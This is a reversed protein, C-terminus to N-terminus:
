IPLVGRKHLDPIKSPNEINRAQLFLIDTKRPRGVPLIGVNVMGIREFDSFWRLLSRRVVLSANNTATKSKLWELIRLSEGDLVILKKTAM